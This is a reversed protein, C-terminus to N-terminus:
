CRCGLEPVGCPLRFHEGDVPVVGHEGAERLRHQGGLGGVAVVGDDVLDDGLQIVAGRAGELWAQHTAETM